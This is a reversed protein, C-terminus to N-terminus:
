LNVNSQSILASKTGQPEVKAVEDNLKVGSTQVGARNKVPVQEPTKGSHNLVGKLKQGARKLVGSEAAMGVTGLAANLATGGLTVEGTQAYEQAAGMAVDGAANAASRTVTAATSVGKITTQAVKGVVGGALVSAGDWLANEFIQGMEGERLGVESSLRDSANIAVSSATTAAAAAGLAVLGTGGTAM